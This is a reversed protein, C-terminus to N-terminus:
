QKKKTQTLNFNLNSIFVIRKLSFIKKKIKMVAGYRNVPGM